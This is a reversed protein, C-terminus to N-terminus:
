NNDAMIKKSYTQKIETKTVNWEQLVEVTDNMVYEGKDNTKYNKNFWASNIDKANDRTIYTGLAIKTLANADTRISNASIFSQLTVPKRKSWSSYLNVEEDGNLSGTIKYEERYKKAAEESLEGTCLVSKSFDPKDDKMHATKAYDKDKTFFTFGFGPRVPNDLVKIMSEYGIIISTDYTKDTAKKDASAMTDVTKEKVSGDIKKELLTVRKVATGGNARFNVTYSNEKWLMTYAITDNKVSTLNIGVDSVKSVDDAEDYSRNLSNLYATDSKETKGVNKFGTTTWGTLGAFATSEPISWVKDYVLITKYYGTYTDYVWKNTDSSVTNYTNIDETAKIPKNLYVKLTYANPTWKAYLIETKNVTYKNYLNEINNNKDTGTVIQKDEDIINNGLAESHSWHISVGDTGSETDHYGTRIAKYKSLDYSNGKRILKTITPVKGQILGGNADLTLSCFTLKNNPTVNGNVDVAISVKSINGAKDEAFIYYTAAEGVTRELNVSYGEDKVIETVTRSNGNGNYTPNKGFWYAAIDSGTKEGHKRIYELNKGEFDKDTLDADFDYLNFTITQSDADKNSVDTIVVLPNITDKWIAYYTKNGDAKISMSGTKGKRDTSWGLFDVGNRKIIPTISKGAENISIDISLTEPVSTFDSEIVNKGDSSVINNKNTNLTTQYFTITKKSVKGNKDKVSFIYTGSANVKRTFTVSGDTNCTVKEYKEDKGFSIYNIGSGYDRATLTVTQTAAFDNTSSINIEEPANDEWVAYLNVTGLNVTTLNKVSQGYSYVATGNGNKSSATMWGSKRTYGTLSFGNNRLSQSEDYIFTQSETNGVVNSISKPNTPQNKNYIVTYSNNTAKVGLYVNRAPMNFKITQSNYTTNDTLIGDVGSNNRSYWGTPYKGSSACKDTGHWHYGTKLNATLTVKQEYEYTKLGSVSSIGNGYEVNANVNGGNITYTNRTYYVDIVTTGDPKVYATGESPLVGKYTFGELTRVVPKVWSYAKGSLYEADYMTYNSDNLSNENYTKSDTNVNKKWHRVLYKTDKANITVTVTKGEAPMKFNVNSNDIISYGSEATTIISISSGYYVENCYDTVKNGVVTGNVTVVATGATHRDEAGTIPNKVVDVLNERLTGNILGNLDLTYKNRAYYYNVVTTGDGKIVATQTSPSTFGEYTKVAPTVSTDTTGKLNDTDALTYTTGDLNMKYHEVKYSTDTNPAAYATYTVNGTVTFSYKSMSLSKNANWYLFHYGIVPTANITITQGYRYTGSGSVSIIKNNYAKVTVTYQQRYVKLEKVNAGAVTWSISAAKYTVDANRNWSVTQGYRYAKNIVVTGADFSGDPQEYYVTLKQNFTKRMAKLHITIDSDYMTGSTSIKQYVTDNEYGTYSYPTNYELTVDKWLWENGFTGDANENSVYVKLKHTHIKWQAYLTITSGDTSFLNKVAQANSYATGTGDAKTNWGTFTYGIYKYTNATLNKERNYYIKQDAMKTVDNTAKSPKNPEYSITYSNISLRPAVVTDGNVTGTLTGTNDIITYGTKATTIIEYTSGYYVKEYFDTVGNGKVHVSGNIKVVATAYTYISNTGNLNGVTETLDAMNGNTDTRQKLYGNLNLYYQNRSYYYNVVTTGDAKVKVTQVDPYTFGNGLSLRKATVSTDTFGSLRETKTPTSLYNGNIDMVYHNVTYGVDAATWNAKYSKNGTSGKYISVAKQPTAGNSGTWGVFVYGLKTPNHLAFTPTEINYSIPNSVVVAGGNLDYSITYNIPTTKATLVTDKNPMTYVFSLDDSVKVNGNYWGKFVYGTNFVASVQVNSGINVVAKDPHSTAKIGVDGTTQLNATKPAEKSWTATFTVIAGDTATLNKYSTGTEGTWTAANHGSTTSDYGTITWGTFTYGAKSPNDIAVMTDYDASTPHSIGYTGGDLNYAIKYNNAQWRAYLDVTAGDTTTLNWYNESWDPYENKPNICPASVTNEGVPSTYWDSTSILHYGRLSYVDPSLMDQLDDYTLERSFYRSNSDYIYSSIGNQHLVQLTSETNEPVNANLRVDYSIGVRSFHPSLVYSAKGKGIDYNNKYTLKGLGDTLYNWNKHHWGNFIYKYGNNGPISATVKLDPNTSEYDHYEGDTGKYFFFNGYVQYLCNDMGDNINNNITVTQGATNSPATDTYNFVTTYGMWHPYLNVIGSNDKSIEYLNNYIKKGRGIDTGGSASTWWNYLVKTPNKTKDQVFYKDTVKSGVSEYNNASFFKNVGPLYNNENQVFAKSFYRGNENWAWGETSATETLETLESEDINGANLRVTYEHSEVLKYKHVTHTYEKTHFENAGIDGNACGLWNHSSGVEFWSQVDKCYAYYRRYYAYGAYDADAGDRTDPCRYNSALLWDNNKDAGYEIHRGNNNATNHTDVYLTYKSVSDNLEADPVEGTYKVYPSGVRIKYRSDSSYTKLSALLKENTPNLRKREVIDSPDSEIYGIIDDGEFSHTCNWSDVEVLKYGAEHYNGNYTYREGNEEFVESIVKVTVTRDEYMLWSDYYLTDSLTTYDSWEADAALCDLRYGPKLKIYTGASTNIDFSKGSGNTWRDTGNKDTAVWEVGETWKVTLSYRDSAHATITLKSDVILSSLVSFAITLIMILSKLIQKKKM